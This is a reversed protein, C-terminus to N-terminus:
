HACNCLTVNEIWYREVAEDAWFDVGVKVSPALWTFQERFDIEYGSEKLRTIGLDFHGSANAACRSADVMVTATWRRELTPPIMESFQVGTVTLNPRCEAQGAAQAVSAIALANVVLGSILPRSM